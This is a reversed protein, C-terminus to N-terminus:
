WDHTFSANGSALVEEQWEPLNPKMAILNKEWETSAEMIRDYMDIYKETQHREVYFDDYLTVNSGLTDIFGDGYIADSTLIDNKVLQTYAGWREDLPISTNKLDELMPALGENVLKRAEILKEVIENLM